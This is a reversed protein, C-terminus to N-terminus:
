RGDLLRALAREVKAEDDAVRGLRLIFSRGPLPLARLETASVQTNGSVVRIYEDLVQSNLLAALGRAEEVNLGAGPDIESPWLGISASDFRGAWVQDLRTRVRDGHPQRSGLRPHHHLRTDTALRHLV